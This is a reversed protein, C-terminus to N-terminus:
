NEQGYYKLLEDHIQKGIQFNIDKEIMKKDDIIFEVESYDFKLEQPKNYKSGIIIILEKILPNKVWSELQKFKFGSHFYFALVSDFDIMIKNDDFLKINDRKNM